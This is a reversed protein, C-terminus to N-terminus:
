GGEGRKRALRLPPSKSGGWRKPGRDQTQSQSNDAGSSLGFKWVKEENAPSHWTVHRHLVSMEDCDLAM